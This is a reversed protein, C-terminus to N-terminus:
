QTDTLDLWMDASTADQRTIVFGVARYAAMARANDSAVSLGLRGAGRSRCVAAVAVMTDQGLGRGRHAEDLEIDFVYYDTDSGFLPGFWCEGFREGTPSCIWVFRHAPTAVGDPLLKAHQERILTRADDETSGTAILAALGRARTRGLIQEAEAETADVLRVSSTEDTKEDNKEDRRDSVGSGGMGGVRRHRGHDDGRRRTAAHPEPRERVIGALVLDLAATLNEELAPPEDDENVWRYIIGLYADFLVLGARTPDIDPSIDGQDQGARITDAFLAPADSTQAQLAGGVRLFAHVMARGTTPDDEYAHALGRFARHLRSATDTAEHDDGDLIKAMEARRRAIWERVPGVVVDHTAVPEV